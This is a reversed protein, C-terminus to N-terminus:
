MWLMKVLYYLLLTVGVMILALIINARRNAKGAKNQTEM